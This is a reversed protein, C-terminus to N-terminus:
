DNTVRLEYVNSVRGLNKVRLEFSGSWRPTVRLICTDTDDADSDILNDNEDYLFADLDTDGDGDVVIAYSVGATLDLNWTDTSRPSVVDVRRSSLPEAALAGPVHAARPAPAADASSLGLTFVSAVLAIPLAFHM